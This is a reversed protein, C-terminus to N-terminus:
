TIVRTFPGITRTRGSHVFRHRAVGLPEPAVHHDGGAAAHEHRGHHARGIRRHREVVHEAASGSKAAGRLNGAARRCMFEAALEGDAEVGIDRGAQRPFEHRLLVRDPQVDAFHRGHVVFDDVFGRARDGRLGGVVDRRRRDAGIEVLDVAEAEGLLGHLRALRALHRHHEVDIGLDDIVAVLIREVGDRQGIGEVPQGIGLLRHRLRRVRFRTLELPPLPRTSRGSM